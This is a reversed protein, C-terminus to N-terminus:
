KEIGFFVIHSTKEKLKDRMKDAKIQLKSVHKGSKAMMAKDELNAIKHALKFACNEEKLTQAEALRMAKGQKLSAECGNYRILPNLLKRINCLPDFDAKTKNICLQHISKDEGEPNNKLDRNEIYEDLKKISEFARVTNMSIIGKWELEYAYRLYECREDLKRKVDRPLNIEKNYDGTYFCDEIEAKIEILPSKAAEKTPLRRLETVVYDYAQVVNYMNNIEDIIEDYFCPLRQFATRNYVHLTCNGQDIDVIRIISHDGCVMFYEEFELKEKLDTDYIKYKDVRYVNRFLDKTESM